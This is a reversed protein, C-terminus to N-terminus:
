VNKQHYQHDDYYTIHGKLKIVATMLFLIYQIFNYKVNFKKIQSLHTIINREEPGFSLLLTIRM